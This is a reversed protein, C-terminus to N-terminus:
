KGKIQDILTSRVVFSAVLAGYGDCDLSVGLTKMDLLLPVYATPHSSIDYLVKLEFCRSGCKGKPITTM